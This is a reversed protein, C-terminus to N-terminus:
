EVCVRPSATKIWNRLTGLEGVVRIMLPKGQIDDKINQKEADTYIDMQPCKLASQVTKTTTAGSPKPINVSVCSCAILLTMPLLLHSQM